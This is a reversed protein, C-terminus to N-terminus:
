CRGHARCHDTNPCESDQNRSCSNFTEWDCFHCLAYTDKLHIHKQDVDIGLKRIQALARSFTEPTMGLQNAIVSKQFPLDLELREVGQELHQKLLYYGLREVPTKTVIADIQQMAHKYHTTVIRLMNTAFQPDKLVHRRVTDAPILLLSSAEMTQASVPSPSGMFIVADMLTEGPRLLRITAEQGDDNSRTTKVQGELILFLNRVPEGQAAIEQLPAYDAIRSHSLLFELNEPSLGQLLSATPGAASERPTGGASTGAESQRLARLVREHLGLPM